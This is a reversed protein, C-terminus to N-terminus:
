TQGVVERGTLVWGTRRKVFTLATVTFDLSGRKEEDQGLYTSSYLSTWVVVARTFSPDFVPFTYSAVHSFFRGGTPLAARAAKLQRGLDEQACLRAPDPEVASLITGSDPVPSGAALDARIKLGFVKRAIDYPVTEKSWEADIRCPSSEQGTHTELATAARLIAIGESKLRADDDARAPAAFALTAALTGALRFLSRYM